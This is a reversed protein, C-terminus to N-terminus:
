KRIRNLRRNLTLLEEKTFTVDMMAVMSTLRLLTFSGLMKMLDATMGQSPMADRIKDFFEAMVRAGDHNALIVEIKDNLSLCGEPETIDFWNLLAGKEKLTYEDNFTDVRRIVATDRCGGAM